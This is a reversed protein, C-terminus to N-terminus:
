LQYPTLSMPCKIFPLRVLWLKGIVLLWHTDNCMQYFATEDCRKRHGVPQLHCEVCKTFPLGMADKGIVWLKHTVNCLKHLATGDCRKRHGLSHTVNCMKHFATEDIKEMVLLFHTVICVNQFATEDCRKRHGVALSHSQVNQSLCNWSM